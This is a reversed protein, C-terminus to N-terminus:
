IQSAIERKKVKKWEQLYVQIRVMVVHPIEIWRTIEQMIIKRIEHIKEKVTSFNHEIEELKLKRLLTQNILDLSEMDMFKLLTEMALWINRWAVKGYKIIFEVADCITEWTKITVEIKKTQLKDMDPFDHPKDRIHKM